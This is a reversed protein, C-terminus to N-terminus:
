CAIVRRGGPRSRWSSGRVPDAAIPPSGSANTPISGFEPDPIAIPKPPYTTIRKGTTLDWLDFVRGDPVQELMLECADDSLGIVGDYDAPRAGDASQQWGRPIRVARNYGDVDPLAFTMVEPHLWRDFYHWEWGRLDPEDPEPTTERLIERMREFRNERKAVQLEDFGAAYLM